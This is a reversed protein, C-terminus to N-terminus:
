VECGYISGYDASMVYVLCKAEAASNTLKADCMTAYVPPAHDCLMNGSTRRGSAM